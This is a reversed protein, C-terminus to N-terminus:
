RLPHVEAVHLRNESASASRLEGKEGALSRVLVPQSCAAANSSPQRVQVTREWLGFVEGYKIDLNIQNVARFNGFKSLNRALRPEMRNNKPTFGTTSRLATAKLKRLRAVFTNELTPILPLNSKFRQQESHAPNGLQRNPSSTLVDLRDGFRQV